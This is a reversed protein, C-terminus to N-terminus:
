GSALAKWLARHKPTPALLPSRQGCFSRHLEAQAFLATVKPESGAAILTFRDLACALTSREISEGSQCFWGTIQLRTEDFARAFALCSRAAAQGMSFHAVQTPGFKTELPAEAATTAASAAQAAIETVESFRAFEGGPRYVEVHLYPAPGTQEGLTIVDKRGGQAHRQITYTAAADAAEPITLAFAPYPREIATWGSAAVPTAVAGTPVPQVLWACVLSLAGLGCFVALGRSFAASVVNRSPIALLHM